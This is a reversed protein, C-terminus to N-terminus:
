RNRSVVKSFGIAAVLTAGEFVNSVWSPSGLLILGTHGVAILYIAM